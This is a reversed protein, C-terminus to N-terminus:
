SLKIYIITGIILVIVSIIIIQYTKDGSLESKSVKLFHKLDQILLDADENYINKLVNQVKILNSDVGQLVFESSKKDLAQYLSDLNFSLSTLDINHDLSDLKSLYEDVNNVSLSDIDILKQVGKIESLAKINKNLLSDLDKSGSDMLHVLNNKVKDINEISDGNKSFGVLSSLLLLSSIAINHAWGENIKDFDNYNKIHRM